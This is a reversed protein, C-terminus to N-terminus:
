TKENSIDRDEEIKVQNFIDSNEMLYVSAKIAGDLREEVSRHSWYGNLFMPLIDAAINMGVLQKETFEKDSRM